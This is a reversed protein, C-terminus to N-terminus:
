GEKGESRQRRRGRAAPLGKRAPRQRGGRAAQGRTATDGKALPKGRLRPRLRGGKSPIHGHDAARASPKAMASRGM